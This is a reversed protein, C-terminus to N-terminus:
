VDSTVALIFLLVTKLVWAGAFTIVVVNVFAWLPDHAWMLLCDFDIDFLNYLYVRRTYEPNM